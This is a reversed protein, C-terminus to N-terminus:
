NFLFKQLNKFINKIKNKNEVTSALPSQGFDEKSHCYSLFIIKIINTVPKGDFISHTLPLKKWFWIWVIEILIEKCKKISNTGM